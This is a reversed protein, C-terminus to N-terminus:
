PPDGLGALAITVVGRQTAGTPLLRLVTAKPDLPALSHVEGQALEGSGGGSGNFAVYSNMRDDEAWWDLASRELEFGPFYRLLPDGPSVALSLSFSTPGSTLSDFRVSYGDVSDIVAGIPIRGTPGDSKSFRRVLSDWPEPLDPVSVGGSVAGAIRRVDTVLSDDVALVGTALLAGMAVEVPDGGGHRQDSGLIEKYFMARLPPLEEVAEVHTEPVPMRPPLELRNGDIEIWRTDPSLPVDTVFTAQWSRDSSHSGQPHTTATTGRDDVVALTQVGQVGGPGMGRMMRMHRVPGMSMAAQGPPRVGSLDLHTADEAFLVRDLTRHEDSGDCSLACVVVRLATLRTGQARGPAMHRMRMRGGHLRLAMALAYEGIVSRTWEADLAGAAIFARGIIAMASGEQMNNGRGQALLIREGALRLYTEPDARVAGCCGM